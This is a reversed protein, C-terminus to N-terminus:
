VQNGKGTISGDVRPPRAGGTTLNSTTGSSSSAAATDAAAAEAQTTGFPRVAYSPAADPARGLIRDIPRL